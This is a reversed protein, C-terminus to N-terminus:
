GGEEFPLESEWQPVPPEVGEEECGLGAERCLHFFVSAPMVVLWPYHNRRHAVVPMKGEPCDEQAQQVADYLHLKETRKVEFHFPLVECKVDPSDVGGHYQRGRHAPYGEESLKKAWELEGRQGKGRSMAGGM